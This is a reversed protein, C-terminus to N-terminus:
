WQTTRIPYSAKMTKIHSLFSWIKPAPKVLKQEEMISLDGEIRTKETLKQGIRVEKVEEMSMPRRDEKEQHPDLDLYHVDSRSIVEKQKQGEEMRRNARLSTEYCWRATHLNAHLTRVQDVVLYKMCLHLTSVMERLKNLALRDLIINNTAWQLSSQSQERMQIWALRLKSTSQEEYERLRHADRANRWAQNPAQESKHNRPKPLHARTVQRPKAKSSSIMEKKAQLKDALDALDEEAEIQKEAQGRIEKM